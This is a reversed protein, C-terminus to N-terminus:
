NAVCDFAIWSNKNSSTSSSIEWWKDKSTSVVTSGTITSSLISWGTSYKAEENGGRSDVINGGKERAYVWKKQTSNNSIDFNDKM